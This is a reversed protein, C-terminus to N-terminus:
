SARLKRALAKIMAWENFAGDFVLVVSAAISIVKGFQKM